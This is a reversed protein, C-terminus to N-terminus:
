ISVMRGKRMRSTSTWFGCTNDMKEVKAVMVVRLLRARIKSYRM